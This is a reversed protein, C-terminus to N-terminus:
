LDYRLIRAAVLTEGNGLDHTRLLVAKCFVRRSVSHTVEPPLDIVCEFRSSLLELYKAEIYCCFGTESVNVTLGIVDQGGTLLTVPLRISFRPVLRREFATSATSEKTENV